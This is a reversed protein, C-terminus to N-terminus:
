GFYVERLRDQKKEALTKQAERARREVTADCAIEKIQGRSMGYAEGIRKAIEPMTVGGEEIIRLLTPSAKAANSAAMLTVYRSERMEIMWTRQKQM